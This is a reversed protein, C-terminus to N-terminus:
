RTFIAKKRGILTVHSAQKSDQWHSSLKHLMKLLGDSQRLANKLPPMWSLANQLRIQHSHHSLQIQELNLETQALQLFRGLPNETNIDLNTSILITADNNAIRALESIFLRQESDPLSALLDYAIVLDYHHDPLPTYPVYAQIKQKEPLETLQELAPKAIDVADVTIGQAHLRKSFYGCGSGLDCATKAPVDKILKWAAHACFRSRASRSLSFQEPDKAWLKEYACQAEERRSLRMKPRSSIRESQRIQKLSM